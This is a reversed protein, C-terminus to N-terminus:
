MLLLPTKPPECPRPRPPPSLSSQSPTSFQLLGCSPLQVRSTTELGGDGSGHVDCEGGSAIAGDGWAPFQAEQLGNIKNAFNFSERHIHTCLKRRYTHREGKRNVGGSGVGGGGWGRWYWRWGMGVGGGGSGGGGWGWGVGEVVVAVGGVRVVGGGSGGGGWGWGVGEM